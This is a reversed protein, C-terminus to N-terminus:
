PLTVTWPDGWTAGGDESLQWQTGGNTTKLMTLNDGVIYFIQGDGSASDNLSNTTRSEITTWSTLNTSVLITGGSGFLFYGNDTVGINHLTVDAPVGNTVPGQALWTIGDDSTLITGEAGLVVYSATAPSYFTFYLDPYVGTTVVDFSLGADTSRLITGDLGVVIVTNGNRTFARLDVTTGSAIPSFDDHYDTSRYIKGGSCVAMYSTDGVMENTYVTATVDPAGFGGVSFWGDDDEHSLLWIGNTGNLFSDSGAVGHGSYVKYFTDDGYDDLTGDAPRYVAWTAGSDSSRLVTGQSGCALGVTGDRNFAIDYLEPNGNTTTTTSTTTTSTTTSSTTTTTSTTTSGAGESEEVVRGCGPQWIVVILLCFLVIALLQLIFGRRNM